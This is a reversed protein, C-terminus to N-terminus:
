TWKLAHTIKKLTPACPRFGFLIIKLKKLNLHLGVHVLLKPRVFTDKLETVFGVSKQMRVPVSKQATRTATTSCWQTEPIKPKSAKSSAKHLGKHVVIRAIEMGSLKSKQQPHWVPNRVRM